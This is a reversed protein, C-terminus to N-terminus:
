GASALNILSGGRLLSDTAALMNRLGKEVMLPMESVTTGLSMHRICSQREGVGLSRM